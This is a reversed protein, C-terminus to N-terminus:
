WKGYRGRGRGRGDVRRRCFGDDNGGGFAEDYDSWRAAEIM